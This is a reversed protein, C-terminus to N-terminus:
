VGGTYAVSLKHPGFAIEVTGEKKKSKDPVVAITLKDATDTGKTSKLPIVIGGTTSGAGFADMKAQRLPKPDLLVLNWKEKDPHELVAYYAGPAVRQGGMTIEVNTDFTTWADSGFRWRKQGSDLAKSYDSKWPPRGYEFWFEGAIPNAKDDSFWVLRAFGREGAQAFPTVDGARPAVSSVVLSAAALPAAVLALRLSFSM